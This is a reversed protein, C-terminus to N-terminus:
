ADSVDKSVQEIPPAPLPPVLPRRDPLPPVAGADMKTQIEPKESTTFRKAIGRLFFLYDRVLTKLSKKHTAGSVEEALRYVSYDVDGKFEKEVRGFFRGTAFIVNKFARAPLTLLHLFKYRGCWLVNWLWALVVVGFGLIVLSFVITALGISILISARVWEPMIDWFAL